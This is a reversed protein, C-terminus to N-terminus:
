AAEEVGTGDTEGGTLLRIVELLDRDIALLRLLDATAVRYSNGVRLVRCPFDGDHVLTYAKSRGISLAQAATVLDITVPLSALDSLRMPTNKKPL